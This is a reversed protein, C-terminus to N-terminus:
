HHHHHHEDFLPIQEAEEDGQYYPYGYYGFGLGLNYYPSSYGGYHWACGTMMLGILLVIGLMFIKKKDM